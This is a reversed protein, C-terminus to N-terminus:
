SYLLLYLLSYLYLLVYLLLYLLLYRLFFFFSHHRLCLPATLLVHTSLASLLASLLAALLAARLAARLAPPLFFLSTTSWCPKKLMEITSLTLLARLLAALLAALLTYLFFGTTDYVLL